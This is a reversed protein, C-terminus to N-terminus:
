YILLQSTVAIDALSEDLLRVAIDAEQKTFVLPPCIRIASRGASLILLGRGFANMVLRDRAETAPQKTM